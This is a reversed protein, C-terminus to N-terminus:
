KAFRAEGDVGVILGTVPARGARAPVDIAELTQELFERAEDVPNSALVGLERDDEDTM